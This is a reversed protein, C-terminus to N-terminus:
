IRVPLKRPRFPRSRMAYGELRWVLGLEDGSNKMDATAPLEQQLAKIQEDVAAIRDAANEELSSEINGRFLPLIDEKERFAKNIAKVVVEHLLEEHVTRVSCDPGDKEVRSVYRWVTSKCDRNNWKIRRYIDGCYACFM